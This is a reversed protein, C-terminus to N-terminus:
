TYRNNFCTLVVEPSINVEAWKDFRNKGYRRLRHTFDEPRKISFAMDMDRSKAYPKSRGCANYYIIYVYIYLIYIINIYFEQTVVFVRAEGSHVGTGCKCSWRKAEFNHSGKVQKFASSVCVKTRKFEQIKLIWQRSQRIKSNADSLVAMQKCTLFQNAKCFQGVITTRPFSGPM